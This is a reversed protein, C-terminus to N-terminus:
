PTYNSDTNHRYYQRELINVSGNAAAFFNVPGSKIMVHRAGSRGRPTLKIFSALQVHLSRALQFGVDM